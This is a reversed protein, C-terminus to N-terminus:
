NNHKSQHISTVEPNPNPKEPMANRSNSLSAKLSTKLLTDTNGNGAVSTAPNQPARSLTDKLQIPDPNLLGSIYQVLQLSDATSTSTKLRRTAVVQGKYQVQIVSYRNWGTKRVVDRYFIELRNFKQLIESGDGFLIVHDGIKPVLEFGKQSNIDVQEIQAMWVPHQRLFMAMDRVYKMLASDAKGPKKMFVPFQTFVPLRASFRDSLPLVTWMSDIYFSTGDQLFVRAVPTREWVKVQLKDRNDFYLEAKEVWISKEIKQELQNLPVSLILKGELNGKRTGTILHRIDGEDLFFHESGGVIRVDTGKCIKTDKNKVAAALLAIVGAAILLWISIVIWLRYRRGLTLM